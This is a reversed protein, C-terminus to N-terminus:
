RLLKRVARLLLWATAGGALVLPVFSAPEHIARYQSQGNKIEIYGVPSVSVGGGAGGGRGEGPKRGGGGGFGWRAKAVPIVTIGQAVVPPAYVAQAKAHLGLREAVREVLPQREAISKENAGVAHNETETHM